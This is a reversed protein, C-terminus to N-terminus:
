LKQVTNSMNKTFFQFAEERDIVGLYEGDNLFAAM